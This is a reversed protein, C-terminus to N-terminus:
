PIIFYEGFCVGMIFSLEKSVVTHKSLKSEFRSSHHVWVYFLCGTQVCQADINQQALQITVNLVTSVSSYLPSSM